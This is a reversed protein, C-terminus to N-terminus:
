LKNSTGVGTKTGLVQLMELDELATDLREIELKDVTATKLAADEVTAGEDSITAVPPAGPAVTRESGPFQVFILAVTALGALAMTMAPRWPRPQGSVFVSRWARVWFPDRGEAEIRAYLRRDFDPTIQLEAADFEDLASWLQRQAALEQQCSSCMAVHADLRAMTDTPLTRACYELLIEANEKSQM